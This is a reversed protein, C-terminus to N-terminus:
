RWLIIQQVITVLIPLLVTAFLGRLTGSTYPWDQASEIRREYDLWVAISGTEEIAPSEGIQSRRWLERYMTSLKSRIAALEKEKARVLVRHTSSLGGFFSLIAIATAVMYMPLHDLSLLDQTGGVLLISITVGGMLAASLSLGWRGMPMVPAPNFVDVNMPQRFLNTFFRNRAVMLYMTSGIFAYEVLSILRSVLTSWLFGYPWVWAGLLLVSLGAFVVMSVWQYRLITSSMRVVLENFTRDDLDVVPRLAHVARRGYADLIYHVLLVYTLIAVPEISSKWFDLQTFAQQFGDLYMSFLYLLYLTAGVAIAVWPRTLGAHELLDDFVAARPRWPTSSDKGLAQVSPQGAVIEHQKMDAAM